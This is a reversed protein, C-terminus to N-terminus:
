RLKSLPKKVKRLSEAGFREITTMLNLFADSAASNASAYLPLCNLEISTLRVTQYEMESDPPIIIDKMLRFYAM